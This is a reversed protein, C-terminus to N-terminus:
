FDWEHYLPEFVLARFMKNVIKNFVQFDGFECDIYYNDIRGSLAWILRTRNKKFYEQWKFEIYESLSIKLQEFRSLKYETEDDVIKIFDLAIELNKVSNNLTYYM